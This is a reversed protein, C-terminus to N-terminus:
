VKKLFASGHPPLIVDIKGDSVFEEGTFVDRYTGSLLGLESLNASITKECEEFNFIYLKGAEKKYWVAPIKEGDFVPTAAIFDAESVTTKILELGKGNLLPLCDGMFISSGSMLMVTCWTKAENYNFDEGNRWVFNDVPHALNYGRSPNIVNTMKDDTTDKGRVVLYDLDNRFIRNNAAFQPIYAGTCVGIHGWTNHIDWGTRRSDAVDAGMGYPLSCGMIHSGAPVIERVLNFLKKLVDFPGATKDYFRESLNLINSIFDLKYFTFGCEALYTFTERLFKEGDPHTPDLIFMDEDKVPDGYSDRVLFDNRRMVTGSLFHLRTPAIWIGAEFGNDRIYDVLSKLGSPYRIGSRWDGERQQWGDDLAIYRVKKSLVNDNKIFDVNEKVDDETAATFYYDWTSWGIPNKFSNKSAYRDANKILATDFSMDVSLIWEQCVIEGEYSYPITTSASIEFNDEGKEVKIDSRFKAPLKTTLSVACEPADAQFFSCFDRCRCEEPINEISCVGEKFPHNIYMRTDNNYPATIKLTTIKHAKDEPNGVPTFVAKYSFIGNDIQNVFFGAKYGPIDTKFSVGDADEEVSIDKVESLSFIKGSEFEVDFYTDISEILRSVVMFSNNNKSM